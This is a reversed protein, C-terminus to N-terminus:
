ETKNYQRDDYTVVGSTFTLLVYGEVNDIVDVDNCQVMSLKRAYELAASFNKFVLTDVYFM